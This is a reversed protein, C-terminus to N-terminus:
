STTPKGEACRHASVDRKQAAFRTRESVSTPPAAQHPRFIRHRELTHASLRTFRAHLRM